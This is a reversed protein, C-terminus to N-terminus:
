ESDSSSQDNKEIQKLVEDIKEQSDLGYSDWILLLDCIKQFSANLVKDDNDELEDLRMKRAQYDEGDFMPYFEEGDDDKRTYVLYLAWWVLMDRKAKSDASHEYASNRMLEYQAIQDEIEALRNLIEEKREQEDESLPEKEEKMVLRLLAQQCDMEKGKVALYNKYDEASMGEGSQVYKKAIQSNTLLGKSIYYNFRISYFLEADEKLSRTPKKLAIDYPVEEIKKEIVKETYKEFKGTDKNKKKREKEVEVEREEKAYVKFQYMINM